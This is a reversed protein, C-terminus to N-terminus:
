GITNVVNGAQDKICSKKVQIRLTPFSPFEYLGEKPQLSAALEAASQASMDLKLNNLESRYGNTESPNVAVQCEQGVLEFPRQYPIRYPLLSVLEVVQRAGRTIQILSPRLLRREEKWSLQDIFLASTNSGDSSAGEQLAQKVDPKALLSDRDLDTVLLPLHQQFIGLAKLTAWQKIALEEDDTTGVVQIFQVRGNPTEITPLEPDPAFAISRIKTNVETAIPGNANMYDGCQFVRGSQFVYRALNQLFNLVWAPPEESSAETKLRFTLEFGWGSIAKNQSKKDYLESFGYTIYHWHPVPALRKYASIGQLPDPGGLQYSIVTGYHKPVQGEYIPKLASDIADWGLASIDDSEM